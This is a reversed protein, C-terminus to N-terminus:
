YAKWKLNPTQSSLKCYVMIGVLEAEDDALKITPDDDKMWQPKCATEFFPCHECLINEHISLEIEEEGVLLKIM